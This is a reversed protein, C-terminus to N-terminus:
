QPGQGDEPEGEREWNKFGALVHNRNRNVTTINSRPNSYIVDNGKMSM